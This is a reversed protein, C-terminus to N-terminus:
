LSTHTVGQLAQSAKSPSAKIARHRTVHAHPVPPCSATAGGGIYVLHYVNQFSKL